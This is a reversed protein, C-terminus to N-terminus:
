INSVADAMKLIKDFERKSLPMVSLRSQRILAIGALSKEAKIRELSVPTGFKEVPSLEVAIWADDAPDPFEERTVTTLGVVAKQSISHYFLVRDDKRM